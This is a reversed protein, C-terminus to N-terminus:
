GAFRRLLLFLGLLRLPLLGARSGARLAGDPGRGARQDAIAL